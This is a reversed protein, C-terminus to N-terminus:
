STTHKSKIHRMNSDCIGHRKVLTEFSLKNFLRFYHQSPRFGSLFSRGTNDCYPAALLLNIFFISTEINIEMGLVANNMGVFTTNKGLRGFM